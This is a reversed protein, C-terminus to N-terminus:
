MNVVGGSLIFKMVDASNKDIPTIYEVPVIYLEGSFAYSHPFYVAVKKSPIGVEALDERTLFGIKELNSINNVKVLVPQTFKREKGVFASLLDKIASYVGKILPAKNFSNSIVRVIPQAIISKGVFGLTTIFVVIVIIGLGPIDFPLLGDVFIFIKYLIFITVVIPVTYLIGQFFYSVLKKVTSNLNM